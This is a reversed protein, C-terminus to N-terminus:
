FARRRSDGERASHYLPLQTALVPTLGALIATCGHPLNMEVGRLKGQPLKRATLVTRVAQAPISECHLPRFWGLRMLQADERADKKDTKVPMTKFATRVHCTELFEVALGAKSM